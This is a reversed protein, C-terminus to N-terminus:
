NQHLRRSKSSGNVQSEMFEFAGIDYEAGQPRPNGDFDDGPADVASGNDIAPSDEKLHFDAESPNVFRPNGEVYESGYIETRGDILNHDVTLIDPANARIQNDNKSLINNRIVINQIETYVVNIGDRNNYFINNIIKFNKHVGPFPFVAFGGMGMNYVINNYVRVNKLTGGTETALCIGQGPCDHVINGYVDIDCVDKDYADVYIGMGNPIDHVHNRYVKGNTSGKTDIAEGGGWPPPGPPGAHHVHNNKIEFNSSNAVTICEHGDGNCALEVDNGDVTIENSDWVGIGSSWTDYTCNKEIIIHSSRWAFIGAGTSNIVRLGSVKIYEKQIHFLGGWWDWSIGTGDITVTDGLYASYTIYNGSSGSNQPIVSENYTGEKVYVTDGAFLTDAAKQITRWPQAETGPNADSGSMAVYYTAGHASVSVLTALLLSGLIVSGARVVCNTIM